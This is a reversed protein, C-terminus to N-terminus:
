RHLFPLAPYTQCHTGAVLAFKLWVGDLNPGHTVDMPVKPCFLFDDPVEAAWQAAKPASLGYGTSNLELSNFQLAYGALRQSKPTGPPCLKGAMADDQWVPCGVHARLGGGHPEAASKALRAATAPHDPPLTFDIDLSNSVKGFDM